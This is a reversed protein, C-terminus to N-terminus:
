LCQILTIANLLRKEVLDSPKFGCMQETSTGGHLAKKNIGM